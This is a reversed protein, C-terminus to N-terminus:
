NTHDEVEFESTLAINEVSIVMCHLRFSKESLSPTIVKRIVTHGGDEALKKSLEFYALREAEEYSRTRSRMVYEHQEESSIEIPLSTGDPLVCGEVINITDYFVMDNGCKKLINFSFGFFNLNKECNVVGTYEKESYELPIEIYYERATEAYVEGEARTYRFGVNNSDYLGSVLLQGETVFDGERVLVNGRYIRVERIKGERSAILNAPTQSSNETQNESTQRERLEVRVINGTINVSIWSIDSTRMLIANEVKATNIDSIAGGVRLGYESLLSCIESTTMRQNGVVRIDWVYRQSLFVLLVALIGGVAIGWRRKYRSLFNPLGKRSHASIDIGRATSESFIKKEYSKRVKMFLYGGDTRLDTYPIKYLMCLNLLAAGDGSPVKLETYGLFLYSINM